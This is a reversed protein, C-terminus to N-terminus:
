QVDDRLPRVRQVPHKLYDTLGAWMLFAGLAGLM